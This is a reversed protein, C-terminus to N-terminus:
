MFYCEKFGRRFNGPPVVAYHCAPPSPFSNPSLMSLTATTSSGTVNRQNSKTSGIYERRYVRGTSWAHVCILNAVSSRFTDSLTVDAVTQVTVMVPPSVDSSPCVTSRVTMSNM